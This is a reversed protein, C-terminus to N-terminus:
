FLGHSAKRCLKKISFAEGLIDTSGNKATEIASISYYLESAKTSSAYLPAAYDKIAKHWGEDSNGDTVGYSFEVEGNWDKSPTFTWSGDTNASLTGDGKSLKLDAISLTDGDVDSSNKLLQDKTINISGDEDIAGLDVPGSVIPADNVAELEFSNSAKIDGGNGDSVIYDFKITGNDNADPTYTWTGNNNDKFSGGFEASPKLDKIQLKDGDVDSFGQLM